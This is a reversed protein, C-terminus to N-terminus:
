DDEFIDDREGSQAGPETVGFTMALINKEEERRYTVQKTLKNIFYIGLGGIQRDAIDASLDPAPLSTMDFAKGADTIEVSFSRNGAKCAVGIEGQKGEYAYNIINVLAEELTLEINFITEPSVGSSEAAKTVAGIFAPLQPLEAPLSLTLVTEM